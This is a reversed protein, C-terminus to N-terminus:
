IEPKPVWTVERSSSEGGKRVESNHAPAVLPSLRPAGTQAGASESCCEVSFGITQRVIVTKARKTIGTKNQGREYKRACAHHNACTGRKTTREKECTPEGKRAGAYNNACTLEVAWFIYSNIDKPLAAASISLQRWLRPTAESTAPQRLHRDMPGGLQFDLFGGAALGRTLEVAKGLVVPSLPYLDPQPTARWRKQIGHVDFISFCFSLGKPCKINCQM